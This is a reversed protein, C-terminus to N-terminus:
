GGGCRGCAAVRGEGGPKVASDRYYYRKALEYFAQAADSSPSYRPNRALINSIAQEAAAKVVPAAKVDETIKKLYPLSQTYDLRGLAGMVLLKPGQELNPLAAVLPEVVSPGMAVLVDVVKAHLASKAPDALYTLMVPVAYEGTEKLRETAQFQARATGSLRDIEGKIRPIDRRRM